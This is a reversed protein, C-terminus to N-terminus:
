HCRPDAGRDKPSTPSQSFEVRLLGIWANVSLANGNRTYVLTIHRTEPDAALFESSRPVLFRTSEGPKLRVFFPKGSVVGSYGRRGHDYDCQIETPGRTLVIPQRSRNTVEIAVQGRDQVATAQLPNPDNGLRDALSKLQAGADPFRQAKAWARRSARVDFPFVYGTIHQLAAQAKVATIMLDDGTWGPGSDTQLCAILAPVLRRDGWAALSEVVDYDLWRSGLGPVVSCIRVISEEDRQQALARVTIARVMPDKDRLFQRLRPVGQKGALAAYILAATWRVEPDKDGLLQRMRPISQKGALVAYVVAADCRLGPEKRDLVKEVAGAHQVLRRSPEPKNRMSEGWSDWFSYRGNIYDLARDVVAFNKSDLLEAIRQDRDDRQLVGFYPELELPQVGCYTDLSLYVTPDTEDWSRKRSLFWINPQTVNEVAGIMSGDEQWGVDWGLLLKYRGPSIDGKIVREVVLVTHVEAQLIANERTRDHRSVRGRPWRAVVIIPMQALEEDPVSRPIIAAARMPLAALSVAALGVICRWATRKM